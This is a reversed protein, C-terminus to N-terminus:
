VTHMKQKKQKAETQKKNKKTKNKNQKNKNQKLSVDMFLSWGILHIKIFDGQQSLILRYLKYTPGLHLQDLYVKKCHGTSSLLYKQELNVVNRTDSM